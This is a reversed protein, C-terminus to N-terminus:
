FKVKTLRKHLKLVSFFIFIHNKICITAHLILVILSVNVCSIQLLKSNEFILLIRLIELIIILVNGNQYEKILKPYFRILRQALPYSLLLMDFNSIPCCNNLSLSDGKKYLLRLVSTFIYSNSKFEWFLSHECSHVFSDGIKIYIEVTLWDLRTSTRFRIKYYICRLM